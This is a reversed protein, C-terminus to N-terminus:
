IVSSSVRQSKENMTVYFGRFSPDREVVPEVRWAFTMQDVMLFTAGWMAVFLGGTFFFSRLM